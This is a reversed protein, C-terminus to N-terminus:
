SREGEESQASLGRIFARVVACWEDDTLPDDRNLVSMALPSSIAHAILDIPLASRLQGRATAREIVVVFPRSRSEIYRRIAAGHESRRREAMLAPLVDALSSSDVLQLLIGGSRVCTRWWM